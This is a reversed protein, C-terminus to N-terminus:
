RLARPIAVEKRNTHYLTGRSHLPKSSGHSGGVLEGQREIPSTASPRRQRSLPAGMNGDGVQESASGPGQQNHSCTGFPSYRLGAVAPKSARM